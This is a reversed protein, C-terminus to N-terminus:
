ELYLFENLNLTMLCFYALAQEASQGHKQQLNGILKLGRNKMFEDADRGLALQYALRIQKEVDDGAERTLRKAFEAAQENLFQGNLMGLAQTPQTTAFRAACSMDTDAFDFDSLIPLILSRKVHVYVSRRVQEDPPSTEWGGGPRSQGAKIEASIEPYVGPGFMKSNLRRSVSLISDRLEEATLRRLDMRWFLQNMPDAVVAEPNSRSSMRYTNSMVMLKHLPKLRWKEDILRRALWDLLEPHTPRDGLLGFNNPSRVLGRGFHHQWLRNVIVRSTLKNDASAIWNALVIRRGS